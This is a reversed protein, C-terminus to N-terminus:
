FGGQFNDEATRKEEREMDLVAPYRPESEFNLWTRQWGRTQAVM